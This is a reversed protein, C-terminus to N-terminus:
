VFEECSGLNWGLGVMNVGFSVFRFVFKVKFIHGIFLELGFIKQTSMCDLFFLFFFDCKSLLGGERASCLCCPRILRLLWCRISNNGLLM